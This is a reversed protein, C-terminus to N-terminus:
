IGSAAETKRVKPGKVIYRETRDGKPSQTGGSATASEKFRHSCLCNPCRRRGGPCGPEAVTHALQPDGGPHRLGVQRGVPERLLVDGLDLAPLRARRGLGDLPEG